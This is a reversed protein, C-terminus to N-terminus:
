ADIWQLGASDVATHNEFLSVYKKEEGEPVNVIAVWYDGRHESPEEWSDASCNFSYIVDIAEEKTINNKFHVHISGKSYRRETDSDICGGVLLGSILIIGVTIAVSISKRNKNNKEM